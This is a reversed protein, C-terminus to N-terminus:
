WMTNTRDLYQSPKQENIRVLVKIINRHPFKKYMEVEKLAEDVTETGFTCRIKKMAFLRGSQDEALYVFSFGRCYFGDAIM